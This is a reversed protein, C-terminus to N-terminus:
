PLALFLLYLLLQTSSVNQTVSFWVFGPMTRFSVLRCLIINEHASAKRINNRGYGLFNRGTKNRHFRQYQKNECALM